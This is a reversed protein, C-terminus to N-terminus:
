STTEVVPFFFATNERATLVWLPKAQLLACWDAEIVACVDHMVHLILSGSSRTLVFSVLSLYMFYTYHGIALTRLTVPFM